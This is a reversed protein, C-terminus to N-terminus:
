PTSCDTTLDAAGPTTLMDNMLQEMDDAGEPEGVVEVTNLMAQMVAESSTTRTGHIYAICAEDPPTALHYVTAGLLTVGAWLAVHRLPALLLTPRHKRNKPQPLAPQFSAKGAYAPQFSAKGACAPQFGARGTAYAAMALTARLPEFAPGDALPSAAFRKLAEEEQESTQAEFYREMLRLAEAQTLPTDNLPKM